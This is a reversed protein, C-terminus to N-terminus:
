NDGLSRQQKKEAMFMDLLTILSDTADVYTIRSNSLKYANLAEEIQQRHAPFHVSEVGLGALAIIQSAQSPSVNANNKIQKRAESLIAGILWRCFENYEPNSVFYNPKPNSYSM